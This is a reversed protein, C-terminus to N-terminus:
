IRYKQTLRRVLDNIQEATASPHEKIWRNKEAHYRELRQQYSFENMRKM